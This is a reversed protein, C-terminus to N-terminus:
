GRGLRPFLVERVWREVAELWELDSDDGIQQVLAWVDAPAVGPLWRSVEAKAYRGDEGRVLFTLSKRRLAWIEPVGFRKWVEVANRSGGSYVVEIALDPPPDTQLDITEKKRLRVANELFYFSEDAEASGSKERLGFTTSATAHYPIRCLRCITKVLDGLRSKEGEHIHSPSVLYVSGDLYVIKPRGRDGRAKLVHEYGRWGVDHLAVCQDAPKRDAPPTAPSAAPQAVTTAEVSM